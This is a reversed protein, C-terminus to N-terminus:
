CGNPVRVAKEGKKDGNCMFSGLSCKVEMKHFDVRAPSHERIGLSIMILFLVQRRTLM